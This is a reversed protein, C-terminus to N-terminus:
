DKNDPSDEDSAREGVEVPVIKTGHKRKALIAIGMMESKIPVPGGGIQIEVNNFVHNYVLIRSEPNYNLLSKAKDLAKQLKEIIAREKVLRQQFYLKRKEHKDTMQQKNRALVERLAQRDSEQTEVLKEMRATRIRVARELKWDVGINLKTAAGHRFGLNGTRVNKRCSIYGGAIVGIMRDTTEISGGSIVDSNLLAKRVYISGGCQIKSNEIFEASLNHKAMVLGTNGTTVGLAVKISGGCRVYAGRISGTVTLDGTVEVVAGSDISGQIEVPGDFIINGSRLNVDGKHVMVKSLTITGEEIIPIGDHEAYYKGRVKEVIGDKIKVGADEPPPPEKDFGFVDRGMIPANEYRVEAILQGAKVFISKQMSRIDVVGEDVGSDLDNSSVNEKYREVLYPSSGATGPDGKAVDLGEIPQRANMAKILSDMFPSCAEDSLGLKRLEKRLWEENITFSKDRYLNMDFREISASLADESVAVQFGNTTSITGHFVTSKGVNNRIEMAGLLVLPLDFGIYEPGQKAAMIMSMLERRLLFFRCGFQQAVKLSASRVTEALKAVSMTELTERLDRIILVVEKKTKHAVIAYPKKTADDGEPAGPFSGVPIKIVDEGNLARIFAGHVHSPNVKQEINNLSLYRNLHLIIWDLKWNGLEAPTGQLSILALTRDGKNKPDTNQVVEVDIGKLIPCGEALTFVISEAHPNHMKRYFNWLKKFKEEYIEFFGIEGKDRISIMKANARAIIDQPPVPLNQCVKYPLEIKVRFQAAVYSLKLDEAAM